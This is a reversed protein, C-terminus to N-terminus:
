LDLVLREGPRARSVCVQMVSHSAKIAEDLIDDRHDIEGGLVRVQCTGCWGERCVSPLTFGHEILVALLSKDSPVELTLRSRALEVMFGTDTRPAREAQTGTVPSFLEVHVATAPWTRTATQAAEIMPRPGCIYADAGAPRDTLLAALNLGRRPDGSDHYFFVQDGLLDALVDRYATTAASRSCYHLVFPAGLRRLRHVMSMIPTIGIGGAILIYRDAAENLAFGNRPPRCSLHDGARVRDHMWASGGRGDRELLVAIIYRHREDPDNLLSYCRSSGGGVMVEIHAGAQFPPLQESRQGVLEFAKITPTIQEISLVRLRLPFDDQLIAM